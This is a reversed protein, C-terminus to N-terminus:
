RREEMLWSKILMAVVEPRDDSMKKIQELPVNIKRRIADIEVDPEAEPEPKLASANSKGAALAAPKGGGSLQISGGAAQIAEPTLNLGGAPLPLMKGDPTTLVLTQTKAFKGIAKLVMIAVGLLAAIPLLSFIQQMRDRSQASKVADTASTAATTDFKTKSVKATFNPDTRRAGMYNDLWTQVDTDAVKDNVLVSVSMAKIKGAPDESNTHKENYLYEMQKTKNEYGNGATSAGPTPTGSTPAGTTTNPAIGAVASAQVPSAGGSMKESNDQTVLPPSPNTREVQDVKKGEFDIELDVTAITNGSGFASDLKTQLERERRKAEKRETELKTNVLGPGSSSDPDVLPDGHRDLVTVGTPDLNPVSSAVLMSIGRAQETSIMSGPKEFLTVSATTPKKDSAFPSDDGLALHVSASEMGDLSSISEAIQGELIAKLREKEVRPTTTYSLQNFAQDSSFHSTPLHNDMMLKARLEPIRDSPASINGNMDMEYQVGMKQLDQVVAGQESGSLGSALLGMHPKSAFLYTVVILFSLFGGGVLAVTRQTKDAGDWWSRLRLILGNM